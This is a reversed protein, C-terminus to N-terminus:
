KHTTAIWRDFEGATCIHLTIVRTARQAELLNRRWRKTGDKLGRNSQAVADPYPQSATPEDLAIGDWGLACARSVGWRALLAMTMHLCNAPADVRNYGMEPPWAAPVYVTSRDIDRPLHPLYEPRSVVVADNTGYPYVRNQSIFRINPPIPRDLIGRATTGNGLIIWHLEM